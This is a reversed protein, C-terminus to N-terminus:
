RPAGSGAVAAATGAARWKLGYGWGWPKQDVPMLHHVIKTEGPPVTISAALTGASSMVNVSQSCDVQVEVAADTLNEAALTVGWYGAKHTYLKLKGGSLERVQGLQKVPVEMAEEYVAANYPVQVLEVPFAAHVSMVFARARTLALGQHLDYGFFALDHRVGDEKREMAQYLYWYMQVFGDATLGGDRSDFASIMWSYVPATLDEGQLTQHYRNLEEGNLVGDM